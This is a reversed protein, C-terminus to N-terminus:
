TDRLILGHISCRQSDWDRARDKTGKARNIGWDEGNEREPESFHQPATLPLADKSWAGPM